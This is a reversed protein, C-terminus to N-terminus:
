LLLKIIKFGKPLKQGLGLFKNEEENYVKYIKNERINENYVRKDMISVGNILLKSFNNNVSISDYSKLADEMSILNESFNDCTLNELKISNEINFTGSAERELKTMYAGCGLEEGIDYCISRIYTGKSCKVRFNVFPIDINLIEMEYITVPRGKREVEIGKRALDYLRQGNVKLASYMPPIQDYQKKFSSMVEIIKKETLNSYSKSELIKGERDYTDTIEGLKLQAKYVKNGEMIYDVLKTGKGICIPLVGKALPDLTGTHGVKSTNAVKKIVRVVDFSTIGEPKYVNIIGNM